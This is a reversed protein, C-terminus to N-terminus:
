TVTWDTWQSVTGEFLLAQFKRLSRTVSRTRHDCYGSFQATTGVHLSVGLMSAVVTSYVRSRYPRTRMRFSQLAQM